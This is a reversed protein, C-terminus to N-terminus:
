RFFKPSILKNYREDRSKEVSEKYKQMDNTYTKYDKYGKYIEVIM